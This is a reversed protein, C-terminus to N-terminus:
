GASRRGPRSPHWLRRGPNGEGAISAGLIAPRPAMPHTPHVTQRAPHRLVQEVLAGMGEAVTTLAEGMAETEASLEAEWDMLRKVTRGHERSLSTRWHWRRVINAARARLASRELALEQQKLGWSFANIEQHRLESSLIALEIDARQTARAAAERQPSTPRPSTKSFRVM